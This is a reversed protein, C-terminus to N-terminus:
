WSMDCAHIPLRVCIISANWVYSHTMACMPIPWKVRLFLDHRMCSHMRIFISCSPSTAKDHCTVWLFPVHWVYSLTLDCTHILWTVRIFEDYWLYSHTMDCEHISDSPIWAARVPLKIVVHWVSSHTMDCMQIRWDCMCIIWTVCIFSDHWAYSHTIDCTHISESPFGAFRVPLKIMVDRVADLISQQRELSAGFNTRQGMYVHSMVWEEVDRVASLVLLQVNSEYWVYLYDHWVSSHTMDCVHIHRTTCTFLDYWVFSTRKVWEYTRHSEKTDKVHSMWIHSTVWAYIDHHIQTRPERWFHCTIGAYTHCSENKSLVFQMWSARNASSAGALLPKHSENIYTVYSACTYIHCTGNKQRSDRTKELRM